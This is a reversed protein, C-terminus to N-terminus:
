DANTGIYERCQFDAALPETATPYPLFTVPPLRPYVRGIICHCILRNAINTSIHTM